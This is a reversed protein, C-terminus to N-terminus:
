ERDWVGRVDQVFWGNVGDGVLKIYDGKKATAKTNIVDKNDASTYGNGMIKDSANPSVSFGVTGNDGVNVFTLTMGAATAPLTIVVADTDILKVTGSDGEAMTDNASITESTRDAVAGDASLDHTVVLNRITLTGSADDYKMHETDIAAMHIV